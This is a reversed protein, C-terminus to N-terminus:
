LKIGFINFAKLVQKESFPVNKVINELTKYTEKWAMITSRKLDQFAERKKGNKTQVGVEEILKQAVGQGIGMKKAFEKRTASSEIAAKLEEEKRALMATKNTPLGMNILYSRCTKPEVKIAEAMEEISAGSSYMQTLTNDRQMRVRVGDTPQRYKKLLGKYMDQTLEPYDKQFDKYTQLEAMRRRFEAEEIKPRSKLNSQYSCSYSLGVPIANISMM